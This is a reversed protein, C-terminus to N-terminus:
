WCAVTYRNKNKSIHNRYDVKRENLISLYTPIQKESYWHYLCSKNRDIYVLTYQNKNQDIHRPINM